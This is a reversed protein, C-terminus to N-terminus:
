MGPEGESESTEDWAERVDDESDGAKKEDTVGSETGTSPTADKIEVQVTEPEKATTEYVAAPQSADAQKTVKNKDKNRRFIPARGPKGSEPRDNIDPVNLGHMRLAELAAVARAQAQKQAKTLLKGQLRLQEKKEKERQKKLEKKEKEEQLKQLRLREAEEELRAKEEAEAKLREEVEKVQRLTEQM